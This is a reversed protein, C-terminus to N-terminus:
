HTFTHMVSLFLGAKRAIEEFVGKDLDSIGDDSVTLHTKLLELAVHELKSLGHNPPVQLDFEVVKGDADTEEAPIVQGIMPYAAASYIKKLDEIPNSM